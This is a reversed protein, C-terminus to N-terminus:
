NKLKAIHRWQKKKREDNGVKGQPFESPLGNRIIRGDIEVRVVQNRENRIVTVDDGITLHEVESKTAIFMYGDGYYVEYFQGNPIIKEIKEQTM